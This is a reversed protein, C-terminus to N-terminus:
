TWPTKNRVTMLSLQPKANFIAFSVPIHITLIAYRNVSILMSESHFTIAEDSHFPIVWLQVRAYRLLMIVLTDAAKIGILPV